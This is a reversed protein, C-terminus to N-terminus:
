ESDDFDFFKQIDRSLEPTLPISTAYASDMACWLSYLLKTAEEGRELHVLFDTVAKPREM